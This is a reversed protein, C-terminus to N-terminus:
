DQCRSLLEQLYAEEETTLKEIRTAKRIQRARERYEPNQSIKRMLERHRGRHELNREWMDRSNDKPTGEYLHEANVCPPYDCHHCAWYGPRIPRGLKRELVLRAVYCFKGELWIVARGGVRPWEWCEWEDPEISDVIRYVDELTNSRRM